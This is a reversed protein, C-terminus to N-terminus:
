RPHRKRRILSVLGIMAAGAILLLSPPPEPTGFTPDILFEQPYAHQDYNPSNPDYASSGSDLPYPSYVVINAYDYSANDITANYAQTLIGLATADGGFDSAATSNTNSAFLYWVAANGETASFNGSLINEFIYGVEDYAEVGTTPALGNTGAGFVTQHSYLFDSAANTSNLVNATATWSESNGIENSFDDCMAAVTTGSGNVQSLYPFTYVGDISNGGASIFLITDASALMASLLLLLVLILGQKM